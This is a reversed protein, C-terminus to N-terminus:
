NMKIEIRKIEKKETVLIPIEETNIKKINNKKIKKNKGEVEQIHNQHNQLLLLLHLPIHDIERKEKVIIKMNKVKKIM